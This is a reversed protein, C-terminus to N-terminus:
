ESTAPRACLYPQVAGGTLGSDNQILKLLAEDLSVIENIQAIDGKSFDDKWQPNLLILLIRMEDPNPRRSKLETAILRNTNSLQLYPGYFKDLKTELAELEAENAKQLNTERSTNGSRWVAIGAVFSGVMGAIGSLLAAYDKGNWKEERKM